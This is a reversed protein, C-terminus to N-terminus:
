HCQLRVRLGPEGACQLQRRVSFQPAANPVTEVEDTVEVVVNLIASANGSVQVTAEYRNDSNNDDPNEFDPLSVFSLLGTSPILELLHADEGHLISYTLDDGDPDTANFDFVFAQNEPVSYNGDSQFQPAANPVTEVEDTVEVVVNLIASANGDSVQVTAEYRNDSNNDDPNEFDPLSVFSLLGTSPILELLHADEGHLISYTLNDGDPDTANFDFVFAQNEPVSYNGDSQFQPAANPVTEVEDTVEM